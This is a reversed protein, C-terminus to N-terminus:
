NITIEPNWLMFAKLQLSATIFHWSDQDQQEYEPDFITEVGLSDWDSKITITIKQNKDKNEFTLVDIM